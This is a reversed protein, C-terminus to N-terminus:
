GAPDPEDVIPRIAPDVISPCCEAFGVAGHLDCDGYCTQCGNADKESIGVTDAQVGGHGAEHCLEGIKQACEDTSDCTGALYIVGYQNTISNNVQWGSPPERQIIVHPGVLTGQVAGGLKAHAFEKKADVRAKNVEWGAAGGTVLVTAVAFGALVRM